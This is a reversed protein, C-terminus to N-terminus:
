EQTQNCHHCPSTPPIRTQDSLVPLTYLSSFSFFFLLFLVLFSYSVVPEIAQRLSTSTSLTWQWHYQYYFVSHLLSVAPMQQFITRSPDLYLLHTFLFFVLFPFFSFFFLLPLFLLDNFIFPHFHVPDAMPFQVEYQSTDVDGTCVLCLLSNLLWMWLYYYYYYFPLFLLWSFDYTM